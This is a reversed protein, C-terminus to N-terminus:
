RSVDANYGSIEVTADLVPYAVEVGNVNKTYTTRYQVDNQVQQLIQQAYQLQVEQSLTYGGYWGSSQSVIVPLFSTSEENYIYEAGAKIQLTDGESFTVVPGM